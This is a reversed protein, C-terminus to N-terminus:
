AQPTGLQVLVKGSAQSDKAVAFAQRAEDAPFSHTVVNAVEPVAAILAIADDIENDFRFSGIWTIEKQGLPALVIQSPDGPLMGIQGVRGSPKVAKLASGAAIPSGSCELVVDFANEPLPENRLNIVADAGVQKARELPGDLLDSSTVSAAGRQKAAFAALLGIPGSGSVLVSCGTLDGVLNIGHLVVGLPEALAADKTSLGQPLVRVMDRNVLMYEAMAGQTHPWTSASGLYSGGPRLHRLNEMGPVDPGFTAPHVTVPTGPAWEGQPDLDIHGSMEHGPILPERVVFTGNAGHYYYHLDSGCIGVYEVALRVQGPGPEPVPLDTVELDEKGKIYVAKM